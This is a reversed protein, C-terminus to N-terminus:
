GESSIIRALKAKVLIKCIWAPLNAVDGKKLSYKRKTVPDVFQPCDQDVLIAELTKKENETPSEEPPVVGGTETLTGGTETLTGIKPTVVGIRDPNDLNNERRLIIQIKKVEKEGEVDEIEIKKEKVLREIYTSVNKTQSFYLLIYKFPFFVRVDRVSSAYKRTSESGQCNQDSGQCFDNESDEALQLKYRFGFVGPPRGKMFGVRRDEFRVLQMMEKFFINDSKPPLDFARCYACFANYLDKKVIIADPDPELMDTVFAYVPSAKRKYDERTDETTKSTCFNGRLLLGKLAGIAENLFGSLESPTTLKQLINQVANDGEFKNPFVPIVWRRYYADSEDETDPIQNASFILKAYSVFYFPRKFKYEAKIIDGGTLMKFNGTYKLENPPLDACINALKGFLDAAAFRDQGFDQIPRGSVNEAGLLAKLVSLYTSKGNAGDGVAM